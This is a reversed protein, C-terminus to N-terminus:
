GWSTMGSCCTVCLQPYCTIRRESSATPIRLCVLKTLLRSHIIFAFTFTIGKEPQIGRKVPKMVDLSQRSGVDRWSLFWMTWVINQALSSIPYISSTRCFVPSSSTKNLIMYTIHLSKGKLFNSLTVNKVKLKWELASLKSEVWSCFSKAGKVPFNFFPVNKVWLVPYKWLYHFFKKFVIRSSNFASGAIYNRSLLLFSEVEPELISQIM